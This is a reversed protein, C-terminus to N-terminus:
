PLISALKLREGHHESLTEQRRRASSMQSLSFRQTTQRFFTPFRRAAHSSRVNGMAFLAVRKFHVGFNPCNFLRLQLCRGTNYPRCAM